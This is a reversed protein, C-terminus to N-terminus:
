QPQSPDSGSPQEAQPAGSVGIQSASTIPLPRRRGTLLRKVAPSAEASLSGPEEVGTNLENPDAVMVRLNADNNGLPSWTYPREFPDLHSCGAVLLGFMLCSIKRM